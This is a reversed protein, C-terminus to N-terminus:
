GARHAAGTRTVLVLPVGPRGDARRRGPLGRVFADRGRDGAM